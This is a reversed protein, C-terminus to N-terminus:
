GGNKIVLKRKGKIKKFRKDKAKVGHTKHNVYDNGLLPDSIANQLERESYKRVVRYSRNIRYIFLKFRSIKNEQYMIRRWRQAVKFPGDQPDYRLWKFDSHITDQNISKSIVVMYSTM